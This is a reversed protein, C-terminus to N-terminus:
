KGGLVAVFILVALIAAIGGFFIYVTLTEDM